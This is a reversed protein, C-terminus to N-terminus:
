EGPVVTHGDTWPGPGKGNVARATVSYAVSAALGLLRCDAHGEIVPFDATVADAQSPAQASITVSTTPLTTPVVEVVVHVGNPVAEASVVRCPGPATGVVLAPDV